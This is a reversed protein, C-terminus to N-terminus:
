RAEALNKRIREVRRRNVGLDSHGKRSASRVDAVGDGIALELDDVFRFVATTFEVHLYGPEDKVIRTRPLAAIVRRLREQGEAATGAFRLPEIRKAPDDSLSSVCNPTSPCPELRRGAPREGSVPLVEGGPVGAAEPRAGCSLLLPAAAVALVLLGDRWRAM